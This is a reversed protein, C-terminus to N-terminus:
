GAFSVTWGALSEPQRVVTLAWRACGAKSEPQRVVTWAWGARGTESGETRNWVQGALGAAAWGLLYWSSSHPLLGSWIDEKVGTVFWLLLLDGENPEEVVHSPEWIKLRVTYLLDERELSSSLLSESPSLIGEDMETFSSSSDPIPHGGPLWEQYPWRSSLPATHEEGEVRESGHSWIGSPLSDNQKPGDLCRM